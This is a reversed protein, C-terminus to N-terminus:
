PIFGLDRARAMARELLEGREVMGGEVRELFARLEASADRAREQAAGEDLPLTAQLKMSGELWGEPFYWDKFWRFGCEWLVKGLPTLFPPFGLKLGRETERFFPHPEAGYVVHFSGGPGILDKLSLFVERTLGADELDLLAGGPFGLAPRYRFEVWSGGGGDGARRYLGEVVPDESMGEPCSLFLAFYAERPTRGMKLRAPHLSCSGVRHGELRGIAEEPTM